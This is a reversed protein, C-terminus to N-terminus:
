PQSRRPIARGHVITQASIRGLPQPRECDTIVFGASRMDGITERDLRCGGAVKAWTPAVARQIRGTATHALVHELFLMQGEPRLVRHLDALAGAVDPITCLVLCCVVTDFSDDAYPLGPVGVPSVTIPVAARAARRTLGPRMAPDPECVVVESVDRYHALNLGTGGGVELVRGRADGVLRRRQAQLGLREAPAFALDYLVGNM